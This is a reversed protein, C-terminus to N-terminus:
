SMQRGGPIDQFNQSGLNMSDPIKDGSIEGSAWPQIAFASYPGDHSLSLSVPAIREESYAVPAGLGRAGKRRVIEIDCPSAELMRAIASSAIMRVHASQDMEPNRRAEVGSIIKDFSCGCGYLAICHVYDRNIEILARACGFPTEVIGLLKEHHIRAEYKGPWSSAEPFSRSVAKYAAEKCAWLMWLMVCPDPARYIAAREKKTFAKKLFRQDRHKQGVWPSHLDVIDNGIM